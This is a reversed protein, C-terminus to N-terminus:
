LRPFFVEEEGAQWVPYRTMVTAFMDSHILAKLWTRLRKYPSNEFWNSDVGAFQRVFPMVAVDVLTPSDFLLCNNRQLLTELKNLFIEGKKRYEQQTFDPYREFYKYRDLMSKFSGDNEAILQRTSSHLNDDLWGQPDHQKLAWLMIDLSEDIVSGDALVLVPVTGKACVQILEPPKQSLKIERLIVDFGSACLAMRARMAYPCRRFSYLVPFKSNM